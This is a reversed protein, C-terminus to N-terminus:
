PVTPFQSNGDKWTPDSSIVSVTGKVFIIWSILVFRNLSGAKEKEVRKWAEMNSASSKRDLSNSGTSDVDSGTELNNLKFILLKIKFNHLISKAKTQNFGKISEKIFYLFM